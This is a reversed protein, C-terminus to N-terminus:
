SLADSSLQNGPVLVIVKSSDTISTEYIAESCMFLYFDSDGIGVDFYM